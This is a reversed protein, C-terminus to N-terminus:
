EDAPPTFTRQGLERNLMFLGGGADGTLKLEDLVQRVSAEEEVQEEIFWQLFQNTAHDKETVALDALGNILGTVKIEHNLAETFVERSSSFDSPPAEIARLIVRGDREHVYNYFKDAHFKEEEAQVKMWKAFGNLGQHEFWASMSLYLYSSYLEENIQDNLRQEMEKSLM